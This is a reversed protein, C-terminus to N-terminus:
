QHILVQETVYYAEMGLEKNIKYLCSIRTLTCRNSGATARLIGQLPLQTDVFPEGTHYM